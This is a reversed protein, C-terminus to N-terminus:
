TGEEGKPTTEIDLERLLVGVAAEADELTPPVVAVLRFRYLTAAITLVARSIALDDRNLLMVLREALDPEYVTAVDAGGDAIVAWYGGPSDGDRMTYRKSM